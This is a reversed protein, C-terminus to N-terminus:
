HRQVGDDALGDAAGTGVLVAQDQNADHANIDGTGGIAM